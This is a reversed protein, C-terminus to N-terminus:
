LINLINKIDRKYPNDQQMSLQTKVMNRGYMISTHHQNFMASLAPLKMGGKSILLYILIHRHYVVERKRHKQLLDFSDIGFYRKVADMIDTMDVKRRIGPIAYAASYDNSFTM